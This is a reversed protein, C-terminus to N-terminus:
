ASSMVRSAKMTPIPKQFEWYFLVGGMWTSGYVALAGLTLYIALRFPSEPTKPKAQPAGESAGAMAPSTLTEAPNEPSDTM